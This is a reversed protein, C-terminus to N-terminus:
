REPVAPLTVAISNSAVSAPRAAKFKELAPTSLDAAGIQADGHHMRTLIRDDSASREGRLLFQTRQMMEDENIRHFQALRRANRV